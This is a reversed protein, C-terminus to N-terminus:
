DAPQAAMAAAAVSGDSVRIRLQTAPPSQKYSTLVEPESGDRQLVQLPNASLWARIPGVLIPIGDIVPYERGCTGCNLIAEEVDDGTERIVSALVLANRCLPCVPRLADFHSRRM